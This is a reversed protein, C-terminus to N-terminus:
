PYNQIRVHEGEFRKYEERNDKIIPDVICLALIYPNALM